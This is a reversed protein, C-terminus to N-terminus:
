NTEPSCIRHQPYVWPQDRVLCSREGGMSLLIGLCSIHTFIPSFLISFLHGQKIKINIALQNAIRDKSSYCPVSLEKRAWAYTDNQEQHPQEVDTLKCKESEESVSSMLKKQM